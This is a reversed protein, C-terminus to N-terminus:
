RRRVKKALWITLLILLALVIVVVLIVLAVVWVILRKTQNPKLNRQIDTTSSIRLNTIKAVASQSAASGNTSGEVVLSL